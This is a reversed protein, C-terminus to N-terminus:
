NAAAAVKNKISLSPGVPGEKTEAESVGVAIDDGVDIDVDADMDPAAGVNQEQEQPLREIKRELEDLEKIRAEITAAAKQAKGHQYSTAISAFIESADIYGAKIADEFRRRHLQKDSLLASRKKDKGGPPGAEAKQNAHRLGRPEDLSRGAVDDCRHNCGCSQLHKCRFVGHSTMIANLADSSVVRWKKCSAVECEVWHNGPAFAEGASEKTIILSDKFAQERKHKRISEM